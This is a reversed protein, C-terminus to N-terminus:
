KSVLIKRVAPLSQKKESNKGGSLFNESILSWIKRIKEPLSQSLHPLNSKLFIYIMDKGGERTAKLHQGHDLQQPMPSKRGRVTHSPWGSFLSWRYGFFTMLLWFYLKKVKRGPTLTLWLDGRWREETKVRGGGEPLCSNVTLKNSM